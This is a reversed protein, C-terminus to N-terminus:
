SEEESDQWGIISGEGRLEREYAEWAEAEEPEATTGVDAGAIICEVRGTRDHVWERGSGNYAFTIHQDCHRCRM